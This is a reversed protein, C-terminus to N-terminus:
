PIGIAATPIYDTLDRIKMRGGLRIRQKEMRQVALPVSVASGSTEELLAKRSRLIDHM